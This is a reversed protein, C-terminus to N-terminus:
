QFYIRKEYKVRVVNGTMEDDNQDGQYNTFLIFYLARLAIKNLRGTSPAFIFAFNNRPKTLCWAMAQPPTSILSHDAERGHQQVGPFCRGNGLAFSAPHAM